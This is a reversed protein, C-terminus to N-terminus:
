LTSPITLDIGISITGILPLLKRALLRGFGWGACVGSLKVITNAKLHDPHLRASKRYPVYYM